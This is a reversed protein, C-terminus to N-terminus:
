DHNQGQYGEATKAYEDHTVFLSMYNTCFVSAHQFFRILQNNKERVLLLHVRHSSLLIRLMLFSTNHLTLAYLERLSVKEIAVSLIYIACM